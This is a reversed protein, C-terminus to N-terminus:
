MFPIGVGVNRSYDSYQKGFFQLLYIEEYRIRSDFFKWLVVAFIVFSFPNLLLLQTGLAWWFYGFYSPHRLKGYIGDTVLSHDSNQSTKVQHSFSKGATVMAATRVYQGSILLILGLTSILLNTQSHFSSKWQPFLTSEIVAEVIALIHSFLYARGNNFLFSDKTVKGPNFRATVYFELFHFLGIAILYLNINVFHSYPVLASSIGVFTGLCFGALSIEDLPNKEIHPYVKGKIVVGLDSTETSDQDDLTESEALM